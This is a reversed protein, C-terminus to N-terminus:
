VKLSVITSNRHIPYLDLDASDIYANRLLVIHPRLLSCFPCIVSADGYRAIIQDLPFFFTTHNGNGIIIGAAAVWYVRRM